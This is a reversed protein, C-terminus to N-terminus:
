KAGVSDVVRWTLFAFVGLAFLLRTGVSRVYPGPVFFAAISGLVVLVMVAPASEAALLLTLQGM